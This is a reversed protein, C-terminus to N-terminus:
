PIPFETPNIFYMVFTNLSGSGSGTWDSPSASVGFSAITGARAVTQGTKEKGIGQLTKGLQEATRSSIIDHVMRIRGANATRTGAFFHAINADTVNAQRLAQEVEQRAEPTKAARELAKQLAKARHEKNLRLFEELSLLGRGEEELLHKDALLKVLKYAPAFVGAASTVVGILDVVFMARKYHINNNDLQDLSTGHPDFAIQSLRQVANGLQIGSSAFGTCSVLLFATSTGGSPIEAATSAAVGVASLTTFLLSFTAGVLESRLHSSNLVMATSPAHSAPTPKALPVEDIVVMVRGYNVTCKVGGDLVRYHGQSHFVIKCGRLEEQQHIAKVANQLDKEPIM